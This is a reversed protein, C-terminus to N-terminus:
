GSPQNHRFFTVGTLFHQTTGTSARIVRFNPPNSSTVQVFLRRGACTGGMEGLCKGGTVRVEAFPLTEVLRSAARAKELSTALPKISEIASSRALRSSSDRAAIPDSSTAIALM